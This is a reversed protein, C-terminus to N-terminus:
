SFKFHGLTDFDLIESLISNSVFMGAPTLATTGGDMTMYGMKVFRRCKDGYLAKFSYGFRRTFERDDIRWNQAM